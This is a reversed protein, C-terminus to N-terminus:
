EDEADWDQIGRALQRALDHNADRQRRRTKSKSTQKMFRRGNEQGQLREARDRTPM